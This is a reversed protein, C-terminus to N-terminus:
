LIFFFELTMLKLMIISIKKKLSLVYELGVLSVESMVDVDCDDIKYENFFLSSYNGKDRDPMKTAISNISNGIRDICEKSIIIDIDNFNVQLGRFRLMLSGGLAWLIHDENLKQAIKLLINIKIQEEQSFSDLNIRINEM